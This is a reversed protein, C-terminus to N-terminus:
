KILPQGLQRRKRPFLRRGPPHWQEIEAKEAGTSTLRDHALLRTRHPCLLLSSASHKRRLRRRLRRLFCVRLRRIRGRERRQAHSRQSGESDFSRGRRRDHQLLRVAIRPHRRRPPRQLSREVSLKGREQQMVLVVVREDKRQPLPPRTLITRRHTLHQRRTFPLPRGSPDRPPLQVARQHRPRPIRDDFHVARRTLPYCSSLMRIAHPYCSSLGDHAQPARDLSPRDLIPPDLSPAVNTSMRTSGGKMRGQDKIAVCM